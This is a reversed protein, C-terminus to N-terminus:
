YGDWEDGNIERNARNAVLRFSFDVSSIPANPTTTVAHCTIVSPDAVSSDWDYTWDTAPSTPAVLAVTVFSHLGQLNTNVKPRFSITLNAGSPQIINGGEDKFTVSIHVSAGRVFNKM